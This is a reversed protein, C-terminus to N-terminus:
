IEESAAGVVDITVRGTAADFAMRRGQCGGVHRGVITIRRLALHREVAEVNQQGITAAPGVTAFMQAGGAIKATLQLPKDQVQRALLRIMEAIATDAFKGLSASEGRSDPLVVHALAAAQYQRDYLAVGLCSGLLTRLLGAHRAVAIQGMAVSTASATAIQESGSDRRATM